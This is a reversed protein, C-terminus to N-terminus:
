HTPFHMSINFDKCCIKESSFLLLKMSLLKGLIKGILISFSKAKESGKKNNKSSGGATERLLLFLQIKM